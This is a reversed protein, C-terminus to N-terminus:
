WCRSSQQHRQWPSRLIHEGNPDAEYTRDRVTPHVLGMIFKNILTADMEATAAPYTRSFLERLQRHHNLISESGQQRAGNFQVVTLKSQAHPLFIEEYARLAQTATWPVCTTPHNEDLKIHVVGRLAAGEMSAALNNVQQVQIWGHLRAHNQFTQRHSLWGESTGDSFAPLRRARTGGTPAAPGGGAAAGAVAAGAAAAVGDLLQQLQAPAVQVAKGGAAGVEASAEAVAATIEARQEATLPM